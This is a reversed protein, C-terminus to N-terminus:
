RIAVNVTSGKPAQSTGNPSQAVVNGGVIWPFVHTVQVQFGAARLIKRAQEVSKGTVDPVVVLPPGKSVVLTVTDGRHVTGPDPTQSIVDGSPVTQNYKQTSKVTLGAQQLSSTAQTAPQNTWDGLQVPAPGKSVVLDVPKTPALLTGAGPDSSIVLGTKVTDSYQQTVEGLTLKTKALADEAAQRSLNTVKPVPYREPGKSIDLSVTGHKAISQGPAPDSSVVTGIAATESFVPTGKAHLGKSQLIQTAAATTKAVVDPVPVKSGPGAGVYWGGLGLLLALVLIIVAAARGRHSKRPAAPRPPPQTLDLVGTPASQVAASAAAPPSPPGGPVVFAGATPVRVTPEGVPPVGDLEDPTLSARTRRAEVLLDGADAPRADADRAAASRVLADLAPALGPM